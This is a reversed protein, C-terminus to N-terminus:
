LDSVRFSFLYRCRLVRLEMSISVWIKFVFLSVLVSLTTVVDNRSDVSAALFTASGTLANMKKFFLSLWLKGLISVVMVAISIYSFILPKPSIIQSVSSKLLSLGLLLVVFSLILGSLYEMRGHGYPHDEDPPTAALKFGVLTIISGAADTVNNVADAVLAISGFLLGALAKGIALLVNVAIGVAGGVTGIRTRTDSESRPKNHVFLKLILRTM